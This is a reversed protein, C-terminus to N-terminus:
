GCSALHKISNSGFNHRLLSFSTAIRFYRNNWEQAVLVLKNIPHLECGTAPGLKSINRYLSSQQQTQSAPTEM